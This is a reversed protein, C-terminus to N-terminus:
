RSSTLFSTMRRIGTVEHTEVTVQGKFLGQDSPFHELRRMIGVGPCRCPARLLLIGYSIIISLQVEDM